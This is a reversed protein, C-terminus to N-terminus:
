MSPIIHSVFHSPIERDYLALKLLLGIRIDFV